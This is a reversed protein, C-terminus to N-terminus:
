IEYLDEISIPFPLKNAADPDCSGSPQWAWIHYFCKFLRRRWFWLALPRPVQYAANPVHAWYLKFFIIAKLQGQCKLPFTLKEVYM